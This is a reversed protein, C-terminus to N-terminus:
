KFSVIIKPGTIESIKYAQEVFSPKKKGEEKVEAEITIQGNAVALLKGKSEQGNATFTISRGIHKPYQREFILPREVGPSAVEFTFPEINDGLEEDVRRSIYRSLQSCYDISVGSDGDIIVAYRSSSKGVKEVTILFHATDDALHAEAYQKLTATLDSM